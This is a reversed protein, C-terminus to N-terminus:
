HWGRLREPMSRPESQPLEFVLLLFGNEASQTRSYPVLAAKAANHQRMELQNCVGSRERRFLLFKFRTLCLWRRRLSGQLTPGLANPDKRAPHFLRQGCLGATKTQQQGRRRDALQSPIGIIELGAPLTELPARPRTRRPFSRPWLCAL